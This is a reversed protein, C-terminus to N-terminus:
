GFRAVFAEEKGLANLSAFDGDAAVTYGSVAFGGSVTCIGSFRDRGTSGLHTWWVPEGDSTMKYVFGEYGGQAEIDSFSLDTSSTYGAILLDTGNVAVATCRDDQTGSIPKAWQQTGNLDYKVVIGDEKASYMGAMDGDSSQSMGVAAYGDKLVAVADFQDAQTGSFVSSWELNGNDDFKVIVADRSEGSARGALDGDSSNTFGVAIYGGDRAQEVKSFEDWGSGGFTAAWMATGKDDYKVLFADYDGHATLSSFHGDNSNSRGVAVMGGDRTAAVSRFTDDGSGGFNAVWVPAGDQDFSVLLADSGGQPSIVQLDGDSSYTYGAGIAAGDVVAVDHFAENTSGGFATAFKSKGDADFRVLLADAQGHQYLDTMDGDSSQTFGVAYLDSGASEVAAFSDWATGSFGSLWSLQPASSDGRCGALVVTLLSMVLGFSLIRLKKM